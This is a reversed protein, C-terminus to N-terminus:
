EASRSHSKKIYQHKIWGNVLDGPPKPSVHKVRDNNPWVGFKEKYQHAFWGSKYNKEMAYGKLQASFEIKEPWSITRNVRKQNVENTIEALEGAEVELTSKNITEFGCSPCIQIKPPKVFNCKPCLKPLPEDNAKRDVSKNDRENCLAKPFEGDPLGNRLLNGANDLIILDEKDPHTRLGRGIKQIHRSLSKTPQADIICSVDKVSFGTALKSVSCLVIIESKRFREVEVACESQDMYGNVSVASVGNQRFEEAFREADVVRPAFVLTKRGPAFKKWNQFIDGIVKPIYKEGTEALSYDGNPGVTVGILDPLYHSYARYKSLFGNEILWGTEPGCVLTEYYKGLGKRWPTASLGIVPKNALKIIKKHAEYLIHCEDIIILKGHQYQEWGDPDKKMISAISQITCVQVSKSFDTLPHNAQIVGIDEIGWKRFETVTQDVLTIMPVIFLVGLGSSVADDAIDAAVMTKGFSTMAQGAPNKGERISQYIARKFKNQDPRLQYM